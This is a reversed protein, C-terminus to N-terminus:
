ISPKSAHVFVIFCVFLHITNKWAPSYSRKNTQKNSHGTDLTVHYSGCPIFCCKISYYNIPCWLQCSVEM